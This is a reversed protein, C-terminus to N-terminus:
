GTATGVFVVDLVNGLFLLLQCVRTIQSVCHAAENAAAAILM